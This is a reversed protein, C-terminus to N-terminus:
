PTARIFYSYSCDPPPPHEIRETPSALGPSPLAVTCLAAMPFFAAGAYFDYLTGSFFTVLASVLGSGFAHLAQASAAVRTPAVIRMLRMCALHLLAFTLGQLPQILALLLVSTTVGAVTWRVVGAFAALMAAARVGFREILAPGAILFVFVEAIVAESWLFSIASTSVGADSWRIVAFADHMAHSGFVLASVLVIVQFRRMGLLAKMEAQPFSRASERLEAQSVEGPLLATAAAAALPLSASMWVVPSLDASTILQGVTLTGIVFAASASGRLWGYELREARRASVVNVSLADAISTTPALAAAQLLAVVLLLWFKDAWGFAFAAAASFVACCALALRLSGLLDALFGVLPGSVLRALMATALILSIQQPVLNKIEFFKPWFPSAVGFARYLAVYLLIFAIIGSIRM